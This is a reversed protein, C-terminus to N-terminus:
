LGALRRKEETIKEAFKLEYEPTVNDGRDNRGYLQATAETQKGTMREAKAIKEKLIPDSMLEALFMTSHRSSIQACRPLDHVNIKDGDRIPM